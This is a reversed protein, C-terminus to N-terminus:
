ASGPSGHCHVVVSQRRGDGGTYDRRWASGVQYRSGLPSGVSITWEDSWPDVGTGPARIMASSGGDWMLLFSARAYRMGQVDSTPAYTIGIFTKHQQQTA